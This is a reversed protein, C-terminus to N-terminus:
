CLVNMELTTIYVKAQRRAALVRVGDRADNMLPSPGVCHFISAGLLFDDGSGLRDIRARLGARPAPTQGPQGMCLNRPATMAQPASAQQMAAFWFEKFSRM